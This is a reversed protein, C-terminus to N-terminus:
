PIRNVGDVDSRSSVYVSASQTPHISSLRLVPPNAIKKPFVSTDQDAFFCAVIALDEVSASNRIMASAAASIIQVCFRRLSISMTQVDAHERIHVSLKPTM